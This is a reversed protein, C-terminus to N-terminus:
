VAVLLELQVPSMPVKGVLKYLPKALKLRIYTFYILYFDYVVVLNLSLTLRLLFFLHKNRTLLFDLQKLTIFLSENLASKNNDCKLGHGPLLLM